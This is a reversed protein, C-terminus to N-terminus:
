EDPDLLRAWASRKEPSHRRTAIPTRVERRHRLLSGPIPIDHHIDRYMRVAELAQEDVTLGGPGSIEDGLLTQDNGKRLEFVLAHSNRVLWVRYCHVGPTKAQEAADLRVFRFHCRETVHSRRGAPLEIRM